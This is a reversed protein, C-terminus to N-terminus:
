GYRIVHLRLPQDDLIPRGGEAMSDALRVGGPDNAALLLNGVTERGRGDQRRVWVLARSNPPFGIIEELAAAWNRHESASMVPGLERMTPVFWAAPGADPPAPLEPDGEDWQDLWAWPDPNPLGFPAAGAAKPVVLAADLMQDRWDGTQQFRRTTAAFLWGRGTEDADDPDVLVVSGAYTSELWQNAKDIAAPLDPASRQWPAIVVPGSGAEHRNFRALVLQGVEEDDLVAPMGRQGDLVVPAGDHYQAYLLHGTLEVGHFQRRLWVAGRTGPGGAAIASCVEDWTACTGVEAGPFHVALLRDWWGPAEDTPRWPLASAPHHDVVADMAVLCNRANVRWRWPEAGPQGSGNLNLEEDLPDANAVPFPDLGSKPVAITAALMPEAAHSADDAWRCGFLWSQEGEAFPEADTLAVLGGYLHDLWNAARRSPDTM